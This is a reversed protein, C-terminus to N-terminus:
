CQHLKSACEFRKTKPHNKIENAIAGTITSSTYLNNSIHRLNWELLPQFHDHFQVVIGDLTDCDNYNDDYKTHCVFTTKKDQSMLHNLRIKLEFLINLEFLTIQFKYVFWAITQLM